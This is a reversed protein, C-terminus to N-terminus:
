RGTALLVYIIVGGCGMMILATEANPSSGGFLTIATVCLLWVIAVAAAGSARLQVVLSKLLDMINIGV